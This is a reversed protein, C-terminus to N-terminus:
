LQQSIWVLLKETEELIESCYQEDLSKAINNKYSPYRAEINLPLLIELFDKQEDAMKTYFGSQKALKVLDHTKPVSDNLENNAIAAKFGKEIVLHCIFGAYLLKKGKLLVKAVEIDDIALKFWYTSNKNLKNFIYNYECKIEKNESM